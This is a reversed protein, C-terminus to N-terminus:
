RSKARALKPKNKAKHFKAVTEWANKFTKTITPIVQHDLIDSPLEVLIPKVEIASKTKIAKKSSSKTKSKLKITKAPTNTNSISSTTSTGPLLITKDKRDKMHSLIRDLITKKISAKNSLFLICAKRLYQKDDSISATDVKAFVESIITDAIISLYADSIFTTEVLLDKIKRIHTTQISEYIASTTAGPERIRYEMFTDRYPLIGYQNHHGRLNAYEKNGHKVLLSTTESYPVYYRNSFSNRQDIIPFRDGLKSRIADKFAKLTALHEGPYMYELFICPRKVLSDVVFRVICRRIMKSGHETKSGSTLYIIGTFPDLVSGITCKHYQGTWGQCSSIGRMSMTLIDWAGDLGDSSFVIQMKGNVNHSSFEKFAAINDLPYLQYNYHKHFFDALKNYVKFLGEGTKAFVKGNADIIDAILYIGQKKTFQNIFPQHKALQNRLQAALDAAPSYKEKLKQASLNPHQYAIQTTFHYHASNVYAYLGVCLNRVLKSIDNTELDTDIQFNNLGISPFIKHTEKLTADKFIDHSKFWDPVPKEKFFSQLDIM